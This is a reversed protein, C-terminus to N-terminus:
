HLRGKELLGDGVYVGDVIIGMSIEAFRKEQLMFSPIRRVTEILWGYDCFPPQTRGTHFRMSTDWESEIIRDLGLHDTSKFMALFTLVTMTTMFVGLVSIERSNNDFFYHPTVRSSFIDLACTDHDSSGTTCLNQSPSEVINGLTTAMASRSHGSLGSLIKPREFFVQAVRQNYWFCDITANNFEQHRAIYEMGYHICRLAVENTVGLSRHQPRIAIAVYPYKEIRLYLGSIRAEYDRLALTAIAEVGLMLISIVSLSFNGLVISARFPSSPQVELWKPDSSGALSLNSPPQLSQTNSPKLGAASSFQVSLLTTVVLIILLTSWQAPM